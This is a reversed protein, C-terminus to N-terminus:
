ISFRSWSSFWSCLYNCRLIFSSNHVSLFSALGKQDFDKRHGATSSSGVSMQKGLMQKELEMDIAEGGKFDLGGGGEGKTWSAVYAEVRGNM